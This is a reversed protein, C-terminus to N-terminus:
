RFSLKLPLHLGRNIAPLRPQRQDWRQIREYLQNMNLGQISTLDGGVESLLERGRGEIRMCGVSGVWEGCNLYEDIEADSLEKMVLRSSDQSTDLVARHAGKVYGFAMATYLNHTRGQLFKLRERAEARSNAKDFIQGGVAMTQDAAIVLVSQDGAELLMKCACQAKAVARDLARQQPHAHNWQSENVYTPMVRHVIGYKQLLQQRAVSQSALVIEGLELGDSDTAFYSNPKAIDNTM